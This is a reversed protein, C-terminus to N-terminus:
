STTSDTLSPTVKKFDFESLIGNFNYVKGEGYPILEFYPKGYTKIFVFALLESCYLETSDTSHFEHDFAVKKEVLKNLFRTLVQPKPNQHRLLILSGPMVDQLFKNLPITQVGDQVALKGSVTHVLTSSLGNKETVIACHSLPIPENLSMSIWRSITGYGHKLVVDGVQISDALEQKQWTPNGAYASEVEKQPTSCGFLSLLIVGCVFFPSRFGRRVNILILSTKLSLPLWRKDQKM